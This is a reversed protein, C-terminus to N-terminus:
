CARMRPRRRGFLRTAKVDCWVLGPEVPMPGGKALANVWGQSSGPFRASFIHKYRAVLARNAKTDRVVWVLGVQFPGDDAGMIAASDM